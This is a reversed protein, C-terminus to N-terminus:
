SAAGKHRLPREEMAANRCRASCYTNNRTAKGCRACAHTRTLAPLKGNVYGKGRHRRCYRSDAMREGPKLRFNAGCAKCTATRVKGIPPSYDPGESALVVERVYVRSCGLSRAIDSYSRGSDKRHLRLIREKLTLTM